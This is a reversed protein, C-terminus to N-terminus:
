SAYDSDSESGPSDTRESCDSDNSDSSSESCGYNNRKRKCKRTLKRTLNPKPKPKPKTKAKTKAKAKAKAKPKPKPKPNPNPNPNANATNNHLVTVLMAEVLRDHLVQKLGNTALGRQQLEDRLKAMNFKKVCKDLTVKLKDEATKKGVLKLFNSSNFEDKALQLNV